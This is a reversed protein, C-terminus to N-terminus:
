DEKTKINKQWDKARSLAITQCENNSETAEEGMM